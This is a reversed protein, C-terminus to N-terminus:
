CVITKDGRDRDYVVIRPLMVSGIYTNLLRNAYDFAEAQDGFTLSNAADIEPDGSAVYVFYRKM